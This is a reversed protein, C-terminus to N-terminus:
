LNCGLKKLNKKQMNAVTSLLHWKYFAVMSQLKCWKGLLRVGFHAHALLSLQVFAVIRKTKSSRTLVVNLSTVFGHVPRTERPPRALTRVALLSDRSCIASM